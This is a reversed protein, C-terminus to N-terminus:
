KIVKMVVRRNKARGESTTNDAVPMSPGYGKAILRNFAIGNKTLYDVVSNARLQSLKNNLNLSGVKDTHGQIELRAEPNDKLFQILKDLDSSVATNLTAKGTEFYINKLDISQGVKAEEIGLELKVYLTTSRNLGKTTIKEINSIYDAKKGVITFDSGANLQTRFTGDGAHSQLTTLNHDTENTVNVEAGGEPINKTKNVVIGALTFRPDNHTLTINLQNDSTEFNAKNISKSSSSINNLLGSVAYEGPSLANFTARGYDDTSGFLKKGDQGSVTIAVYPLPQGTAEDAVSIIIDKSPIAKEIIVPVPLPAKEVVKAPRAKNKCINTAIGISYYLQNSISSGIASRYEITALVFTENFLNVQLGAGPALSFGHINKYSTYDVKTILFPSFIHKDTLMKFHAGANIDLMFNSSGFLTNGPLLYDVWSGNLTGILDIDGKWIKRSTGYSIKLCM